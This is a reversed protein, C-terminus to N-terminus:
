NLETHNAAKTLKAEMTPPLLIIIMIVLKLLRIWLTGRPLLVGSGVSSQSLEMSATQGLHSYSWREVSLFLPTRPVLYIFVLYLAADCTVTIELRGTQKERSAFVLNGGSFERNLYLLASYDRYHYAPPSPDCESTKLQCNDAHFAHSM